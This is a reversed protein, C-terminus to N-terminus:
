DRLHRGRDDVHDSEFSRHDSYHEYYGHRDDDDDYHRHGAYHSKDPDNWDQSESIPLWENLRKSKSRYIDKLLVVCGGCFDDKSFKDKDWCEVELRAHEHTDFHSSGLEFTFRNNHTWDPHLTKQIVDTKQTAQGVRPKPILRLLVYPDSLGNSDKAPLHRAAKVTVTLTKKTDARSGNIGADLFVCAGNLPAPGDPSEEFHDERRNGSKYEAGSRPSRNGDGRSSRSNNGRPSRSNDGRPSRHDVERPLRRNDNPRRENYRGGQKSGYADHAYVQFWNKYEHNQKELVEYLPQEFYGLFDDRTTRDYDWCEIVLKKCDPGTRAV